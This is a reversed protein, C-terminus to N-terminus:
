VASRGECFPAAYEWRPEIAIKGARDIFGIKGHKPRHASPGRRLLGSRQRLRIGGRDRTGEYRHVRLAQGRRRARCRRSLIRVRLSLASPHRGQRGQRQLRSPRGCTRLPPSRARRAPPGDSNGPECGGADSSGDEIASTAGADLNPEAPALPDAALPVATAVAPASTQVEAPPTRHCGLAVLAFSASWRSVSAALILLTCPSRRRSRAAGRRIRRGAARASTSRASRSSRGAMRKHWLKAARGTRRIPPAPAISSAM